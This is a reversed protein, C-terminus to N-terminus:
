QKTKSVSGPHIAWAPRSGAVRKGGGERGSPPDRTYVATGAEGTIESPSERRLATMSIKEVKTIDTIRFIKKKKKFFFARTVNADLEYVVRSRKDPNNIREQQTQWSLEGGIRGHIAHDATM